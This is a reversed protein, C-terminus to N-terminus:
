IRPVVEVVYVWYMSNIEECNCDGQPIDACGCEYIAGQGNCVGCSDYAGVCDDIDDCM